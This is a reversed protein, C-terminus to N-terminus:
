LWEVKGDTLARIGAFKRTEEFALDGLDMHGYFRHSSNIREWNGFPNRWFQREYKDISYELRGIKSEFVERTTARLVAQIAYDSTEQENM